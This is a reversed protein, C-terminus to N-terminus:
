KGRAESHTATKAAIQEAWENMFADLHKMMLSYFEEMEKVRDTFPQRDKERDSAVITANPDNEIQTLFQEALTLNRRLLEAHNRFAAGFIDQAAIYFDKRNGPINTREVLQHDRLRGMVQSVPGKSVGLQSTIDDLSLPDATALLLGVINGMLKPLGFLQYADGFKQIWEQRLTM